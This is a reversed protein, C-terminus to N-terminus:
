NEKKYKECNGDRVYAKENQECDVCSKYSCEKKKCSACICKERYECISSITNM